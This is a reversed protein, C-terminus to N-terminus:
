TKQLMRKMQFLPSDGTFANKATSYIIVTLAIYESLKTIQICSCM